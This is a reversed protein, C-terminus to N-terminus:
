STSCAAPSKRKDIQRLPLVSKLDFGRQERRISRYATLLVIGAIAISALVM